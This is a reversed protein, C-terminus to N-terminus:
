GASPQRYTSKHTCRERKKKREGSRKEREKQGAKMNIHLTQTYRGIRREREIM